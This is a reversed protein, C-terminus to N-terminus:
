ARRQHARGSIALYTLTFDKEISLYNENYFRNPDCSVLAQHERAPVSMLSV